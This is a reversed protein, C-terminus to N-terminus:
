QKSELYRFQGVLSNLVASQSSLEESTAASEETAATNSAIVESISDVDTSIQTVSKKQDESANYIQDVLDTVKQVIEVVQQIEEATEDTIKRGVKVTEITEEILAETNRSAEATQEALNRVEDAVVAFGKGATGARAAEIAANLSLINTQASIDNIVKIIEKIENSKQNIDNMSTIMRKMHESSQLIEKRSKESVQKALLANNANGKTKEEVQSLNDSLQQISATQSVSGEALSQSTEAVQTAGTDVQGSAESIDTFANSLEVSINNILELLPAFEGVYLDERDSKVTFNGDAMHKLVGGLDRIMDRFMHCLDRMSNSLGGLEDESEYEIVTHLKGKLIELAVDEIETVPKEISATIVKAFAMGGAIAVVVILIIIIITVVYINDGDTSAQDAGNKNFAVLELFVSSVEDFVQESENEMIDMASTTDNNRSYTIMEDHIVLYRQWLAQAEELLGKDTDNTVLVTSYEKFMDAIQIAVEEMTQEHKVMTVNDQSIVHSAEAIRFDSTATNLEEAIIVSPLWNASVVTTGKNLEYMLYISIVGSILLSGMLVYSLVNLKAKIKLNRLKDM